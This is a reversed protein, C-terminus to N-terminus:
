GANVKNLFVSIDKELNGVQNKMDESFSLVEGSVVQTSGITQHVVDISSASLSSLDSATNVNKAIEGMVEGQETVAAAVVQSASSLENIIESVDSIARAAINSDDQIFKIQTAIDETAKATQDALSKVENAVVAFGRGADGARAAEITANLALLNTQESIENILKVVLEIKEANKALTNIKDVTEKTKAIAQEAVNTSIKTQDTINSITNVMEETASAAEIVNKSTNDVNGKVHESQQMIESSSINLKQSVQELNDSSQNINQLKKTSNTQFDQILQGVYEMKKTKKDTEIQKEADNKSNQNAAKQFVLLSKAMVGIENKYETFEIKDKRNGKALRDMMQSLKNIKSGINRCILMSVTAIALIIIFTAILTNILKSSADSRIVDMNQTNKDHVKGFESLYQKITPEINSYIKSLQKAQKNTELDLMAFALFHTAYEKILKKLQATSSIPLKAAILKKDFNLIRANFKKIYKESRRLMFDKEHRRFLLMEVMLADLKQNDKNKKQTDKILQEVNHVATRLAGKLGTEPTTGLKDKMDVITLFQQQSEIIGAKVFESKDIEEQTDAIKEFTEIGKLVSNVATEYRGAYKKDLRVLYDKESRRMQLTDTYIGNFLNTKAAIHESNINEASINKADFFSNLQMLLLTTLSLITIITIQWGVKVNNFKKFDLIAMYLRAEMIFKHVIM